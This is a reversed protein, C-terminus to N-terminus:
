KYVDFGRPLFFGARPSYKALARFAPRELIAALACSEVIKVSVRPLPPALSFFFFFLAARSRKGPLVEFRM